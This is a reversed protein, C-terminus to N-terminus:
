SGFADLTTAGEVTLAESNINETEVPIDTAITNNGMTIYEKISNDIGQKAGCSHCFVADNSLSKGCQSCYKM